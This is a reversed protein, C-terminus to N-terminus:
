TWTRDAHAEAHRPLDSLWLALDLKRTTLDRSAILDLMADQIETTLDSFAFGARTRAISDLEDLGLKYDFARMRLSPAPRASFGYSRCDEKALAGELSAALTASDVDDALTRNLLARLTAFQAGTLVQPVYVAGEDVLRALSTSRASEAARGPKVLGVVQVNSAM